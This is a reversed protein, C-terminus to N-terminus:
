LFKALWAKVRVVLSSRKLKFRISDCKCGQFFGSGTVLESYIRWCDVCKFFQM